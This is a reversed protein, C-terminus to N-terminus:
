YSAGNLVWLVILKETKSPNRVRHSQDNDELYFSDGEELLYTKEGIGLELQGQQVYGAEEGKRLRSKEDGANPEFISLVMKLDSSLRPSLLEESIGTGAFNMKRRSNKRVITSVEDAPAQVDGHFFWSIQVELLECISQLVPIPLASVGREVQSVYGVSRNITEAMQVLTVGKSKRLDRIQHGIRISESDIAKKEAM